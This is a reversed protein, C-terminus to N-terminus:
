KFRVKGENKGGLYQSVSKSSRKRGTSKSKNQINIDLDTVKNM